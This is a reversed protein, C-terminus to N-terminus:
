FKLNLIKSKQRSQLDPPFGVFIIRGCKAIRRGLKQLVGFLISFRPPKASM